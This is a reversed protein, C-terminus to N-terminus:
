ADVKKIYGKDEIEKIAVFPSMKPKEKIAAIESFYIQQNQMIKRDWRNDEWAYYLLTWEGQLWNWCWYKQGKIMESIAM